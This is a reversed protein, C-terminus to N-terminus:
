QGAIADTLHQKGLAVVLGADICEAVGQMAVVLWRPGLGPAMDGDPLYEVNCALAVARDALVPQSHLRVVICLSRHVLRPLVQLLRKRLRFTTAGVSHTKIEFFSALGQLSAKQM